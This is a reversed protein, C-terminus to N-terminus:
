NESVARKRTDSKPQSEVVKVGFHGDGETFGTFWSNDRLDSTDLLSEPIELSYKINIFKILDNFRKNKRHEFNVM